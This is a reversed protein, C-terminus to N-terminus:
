IFPCLFEEGKEGRGKEGRHNLRELNTLHFDAFLRNEKWM